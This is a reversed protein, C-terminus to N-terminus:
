ALLPAVYLPGDVMVCALIAFVWSVINHARQQDAMEM